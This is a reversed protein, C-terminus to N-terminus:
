VVPPHNAEYVSFERVTKVVYDVIIPADTEGFLYEFLRRGSYYTIDTDCHRVVKVSGEATKDNIIGYVCQYEPNQVKFAVLKDLNAKRSSQNDSNYRNKLEMIIKRPESMIDLGSPHGTYLNTYGPYEGIVVQWIEGYKMQRQKIRLYQYANKLDTESDLIDHFLETREHRTLIKEIGARVKPFYDKLHPRLTIAESFM